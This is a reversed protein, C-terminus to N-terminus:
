ILEMSRVRQRRIGLRSLESKKIFLGGGPSLPTYNVSYGLASQSVATVAEDSTPANLERIVIDAVVSKVVDASPSGEAIMVDMDKGVKQAENRIVESVVKLLERARTQEETTLARKLKTIDDITAYDSM